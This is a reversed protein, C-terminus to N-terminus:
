VKVTKKKAAPKVNQNLTPDLDAAEKVLQEAEQLLRNADARMREAQDMRQRALDSDSLVGDTMAATTAAAAKKQAPSRNDVKKNKGYKQVQSDLENLKKVAEEGKAMENLIGNLEDLMVSSTPTPTIKVQNTPVKKIFNNKHLAQLCNMGDPLTTRFLADSFSQAQQGAASELVRMIEDHYMRPLLDSYAVLCMHEENPVERFLLIVKKGNHNGVHKLM